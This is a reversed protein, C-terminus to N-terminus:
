SSISSAQGATARSSFAGRASRSHSHARESSAMGFYTTDADRRSNGQFLVKWTSPSSYSATRCSLSIDGRPM